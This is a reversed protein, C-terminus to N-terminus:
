KICFGADKCKSKETEEATEAEKLTESKRVVM